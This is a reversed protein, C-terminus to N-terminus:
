QFHFHEQNTWSQVGNEFFIEKTVVIVGVQLGLMWSASALLNSCTQPWGSHHIMVRDWFNLLFVLLMFIYIDWIKFVCHYFSRFNFSLFFFSQFVFYCFRFFLINLFQTHSSHCCWFSFFLFLCCWYRFCLCSLVWGFSIDSLLSSELLEFKNVLFLLPLFKFTLLTRCTTRQGWCAFQPMHICM